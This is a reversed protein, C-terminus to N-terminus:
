PGKDCSENEGDRSRTDGDWRDTDGDRNTTDGDGRKTDGGTNETDGGMNETDGDRGGTNGDQSRTDEDRPSGITADPTGLEQQGECEKGMDGDGATGGQLLHWYRSGPRRLEEPSELEHLRGGELVAVRQARMALAVKGTM